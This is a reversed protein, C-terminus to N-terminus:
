PILSANVIPLLILLGAVPMCMGSSSLCEDKCMEMWCLLSNVPFVGTNWRQVRQVAYMRPPTSLNRM